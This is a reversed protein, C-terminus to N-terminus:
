ETAEEGIAVHPILPGALALVAQCSPCEVGIVVGDLAPTDMWIPEFGEEVQVCRPRSRLIRLVAESDGAAVASRLERTPGTCKAGPATRLRGMTLEKGM